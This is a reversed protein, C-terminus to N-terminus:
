ASRPAAARVVPTCPSGSLLVWGDLEATLRLDLWPVCANRVRQAQATLIGSMAVRAGAQAHQQLVPALEILSDALINAVVIDHREDVPVQAPDSIRLAHACGNRRANCATAEL